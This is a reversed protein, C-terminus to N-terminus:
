ISDGSSRWGDLRPKSSRWGDTSRPPLSDDPITPARRTDLRRDSETRHVARHATTDSSSDDLEYSAQQEPWEIRNAAWRTPIPQVYATRDRSGNLLPPAENREPPTLSPGLFRGGTSPSEVEPRNSTQADSRSDLDPIPQLAFPATGSPPTASSPTGSRSAPDDSSWLRSGSSTAPPAARAADGPLASNSPPIRTWETPKRYFEDRYGRTTSLPNSSTTNPIGPLASAGDNPDPRMGPDIRPRQDAADPSASSGSPPVPSPIGPAQGRPIPEWPTAGAPDAAPTTYYPQTQPVTQMGYAGGSGCNCGPAAAPVAPAVAAPAVYTAPVPATVPVTAYVPRFTTYPVRRAQYTYSTCPQTCTMPLGNAPNYSVTRRYTTVPVAEWVTRYAVQPLYQVVTQECYGQGCSSTPAPAYGATTAVTQPQRNFLWDFLPGAQCPATMVLSGLWVGCWATRKTIRGNMKGRMEGNGRMHGACQRARM